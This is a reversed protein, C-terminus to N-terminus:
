LKRSAEHSEVLLHCADLVLITRKRQILVGWIAKSVSLTSVVLPVPKIQAANLFIIDDPAEVVIGDCGASTNVMLLKPSRYRINQERFPIIEHLKVIRDGDQNEGRPEDITSVQRADIGFSVGQIRFVLLQSISDRVNSTKTVDTM